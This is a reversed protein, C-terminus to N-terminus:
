VSELLGKVYALHRPDQAKGGMNLKLFYEYKQKDTMPSLHAMSIPYDGFHDQDHGCMQHITMGKYAFRGENFEVLATVRQKGDLCEYSPCGERFPLKIFVFKGIDVNNFISDILKVKDDLTWVNGRQYDPEMDLGFNYYTTFISMTSMQMYQIFVSDRYSLQPPRHQPDIYPYLDHWAAYADRECQLPNGYNQEIFKEHLKYIKGGDLVETVVSEKIAGRQVRQGVSYQITPPNIRYERFDRLNRELQEKAAQEASVYKARKAM